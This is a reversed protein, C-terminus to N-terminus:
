QLATHCTNLLFPGATDVFLTMMVKNASQQLRVKTARHSDSHKWTLLAQKSLPTFHYVWTKDDAIFRSLYANREKRYRMLCQQCAVIRVQKREPLLSHPVWCLCYKQYKLDEIVIKQVTGYLANVKNAILLLRVNRNLHIVADIKTHLDDTSVSVIPLRCEDEKLCETASECM